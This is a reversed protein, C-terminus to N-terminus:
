GSLQGREVSANDIPRSTSPSPQQAAEQLVAFVSGLFCVYLKHNHLVQPIKDLHIRFGTIAGKYM